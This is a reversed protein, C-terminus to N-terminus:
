FDFIGVVFMGDGLPCTYPSFGVVKCREVASGWLGVRIGEYGLVVFFEVM